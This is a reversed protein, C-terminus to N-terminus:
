INALGLMCYTLSSFNCLIDQDIAANCTHCVFSHLQLAQLHSCKQLLIKITHVM